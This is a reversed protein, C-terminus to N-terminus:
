SKSTGGDVLITYTNKNDKTKLEILMCDGYDAPLMEIDM